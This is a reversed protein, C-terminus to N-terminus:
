VIGSVHIVAIMVITALGTMSVSRSARSEPSGENGQQIGQEGQGENQGGDPEKDQGIDQKDGQNDGQDNDEQWNEGCPGAEGDDVCWVDIPAFRNEVPRCTANKRYTLVDGLQETVADMANSMCTYNVVEDLSGINLEYAVLM